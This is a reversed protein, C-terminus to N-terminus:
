LSTQVKKDRKLNTRRKARSKDKGNSLPVAFAKRGNLPYGSLMATVPTVDTARLGKPHQDAEFVVWQGEKLSDFSVDSVRSSHFFFDIGEATGIFGFGRDLVLRKIVGNRM